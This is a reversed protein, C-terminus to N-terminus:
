AAAQIAAKTQNAYAMAQVRAGADTLHLGRKEARMGDPGYVRCHWHFHNDEQADTIFYESHVKHPDHADSVQTTPVQAPEGFSAFDLDQRLPAAPAKTFLEKLWGM